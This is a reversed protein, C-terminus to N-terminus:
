LFTPWDQETKRVASTAQAPQTTRNTGEDLDPSQGQGQSSHVLGVGSLDPSVGQRQTERGAQSEYNTCCSSEPGGENSTSGEARAVSKSGPWDKAAKGQEAANTNPEVEDVAEGSADSGKSASNSLCSAPGAQPERQERFVSRRARETQYFKFDVTGGQESCNEPKPQQNSKEM